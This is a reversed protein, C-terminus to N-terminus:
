KKEIYYYTNYFEKSSSIEDPTTTDIYYKRTSELSIIEALEPCNTQIASIDSFYGNLNIIVEVPKEVWGGEYDYSTNTSVTAKVVIKEDEGYPLYSYTYSQKVTKTGLMETEQCTETNWRYYYNKYYVEDGYRQYSYRQLTYTVSLTYNLTSIEETEDEYNMFSKQDNGIVLVEDKDLAIFENSKACSALAFVTLTLILLILTKKMIHEKNKIRHTHLRHQPHVAIETFNNYYIKASKYILILLKSSM